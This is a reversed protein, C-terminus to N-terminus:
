ASVVSEAVSEYTQYIVLAAGEGLHFLIPIYAAHFLVTSTNFHISKLNAAKLRSRMVKALELKRLTVLTFLTFGLYVALIAVVTSTFILRGQNSHEL